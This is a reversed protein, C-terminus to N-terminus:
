PRVIPGPAGLPAFGRCCFRVWSGWSGFAKHGEREAQETRVREVAETFKDCHAKAELWAKFSKTAYCANSVLTSHQIRM